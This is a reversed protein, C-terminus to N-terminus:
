CGANPDGQGCRGPNVSLILLIPRVWLAARSLVASVRGESKISPRFYM